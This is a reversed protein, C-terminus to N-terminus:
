ALELAGSKIAKMYSKLSITQQLAEGSSYDEGDDISKMYNKVYYDNMGGSKQNLKAFVQIGENSFLRAELDAKTGYKEDKYFGFLRKNGEIASDSFKFSGPKNVAKPYLVMLYFDLLTNPKNYELRKKFYQHVFDLQKLPNTPIDVNSIGFNSKSTKDMWQIFGRAGSKKNTATPNFRSEFYIIAMLWDPNIGIDNAIWVLKKLFDEKMAPPINYEPTETNKSKPVGIKNALYLDSPIETSKWVDYSIDNPTGGGGSMREDIRITKLFEQFSEQVKM